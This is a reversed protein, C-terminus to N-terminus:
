DNYLIYNESVGLFGSKKNSLATRNGGDLDMSYINLDNGIYYIKDQKRM